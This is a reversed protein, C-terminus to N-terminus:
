GGGSLRRYMSVARKEVARWFGADSQLCQRLEQHQYCKMFRFLDRQTLGIDMASFYLGAVDKIIWRKSLNSKILARHLDIVSVKLISEGGQSDERQSDLDLLFHCIYYDRHCIGNQHLLRSVNALKEILQKKSSFDVAQEPWQGCIDELSRTNSLDETIIFSKRTAPNWGKEGYAAVTMTDIGLEQLRSVAQWENRAGLIPLRLQLLNKLIESWGVGSHLKVFYSKGQHSFRKTVRGKVDRYVDGQIDRLFVYPDNESFSDAFFDNFFLTSM